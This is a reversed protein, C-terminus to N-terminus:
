LPFNVHRRAGGCPIMQGAGTGVNETDLVCFGSLSSFGVGTSQKKKKNQKLCVNKKNTKWKFYIVTTKKEGWLDSFLDNAIEFQSSRTRQMATLVSCVPVFTTM